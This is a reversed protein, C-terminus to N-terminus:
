NSLKIKQSVLTAGCLQREGMAYAHICSGVSLALTVLALVLAAFKLLQECMHIQACIACDDGTCTHGAEVAVFCVSFVMALCLVVALVAALVRHSRVM